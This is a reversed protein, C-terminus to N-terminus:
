DKYMKVMAEAFSGVPPNQADKHQWATKQFFADKTIKDFVSKDFPKSSYDWWLGHTSDQNLKLMKNFYEKGRKDYLAVTKFMLQHMFYDFERSENKWYQHMVERWAALLYSGKRSRIFCNQMFSYPSGAKGSTMYVFFDEDIINQPVPSTVFDTSDLWIGGHNNLLEVRALDAFHANKIIGKKKKDMIFGPLSIYDDINKENIVVLEQNCNHRISRFCADIIPPTIPNWGWMSFIKENEDDKIVKKEKIKRVEPLYRKYYKPIVESAIRVRRDHRKSREWWLPNLIHSLLIIKFTAWIRKINIM